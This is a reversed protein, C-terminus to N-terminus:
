VTAGDAPEYWSEPIYGLAGLLDWGRTDLEDLAAHNVSGGILSQLYTPEKCVRWWDYEESWEGALLVSVTVPPTNEGEGARIRTTLSLAKNGSHRIERPLGSPQLLMTM